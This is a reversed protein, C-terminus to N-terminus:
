LASRGTLIGGKEQQKLYIEKAKNLWKEKRKKRAELLASKHPKYLSGEYDKAGYPAGTRAHEQALEEARLLKAEVLMQEEEKSRGLKEYWKQKELREATDFINGRDSMRDMASYYKDKESLKEAEKESFTKYTTPTFAQKNQAEILANIGEENSVAEDYSIGGGASGGSSYGEESLLKKNQFESEIQDLYDRKSKKLRTAQRLNPKKIMSEAEPSIEQLDSIDEEVIPESIYSTKPMRMRKQMQNEEVIDSRIKEMQRTSAQDRGKQEADTFVNPDAKPPLNAGPAKDGEFYTTPIEVDKRGRTYLFPNTDARDGYDQATQTRELNLRATKLADNRETTGEGFSKAYEIDRNYAAIDESKLSSIDKQKMGEMMNYAGAGVEIMDGMPDDYYSGDSRRGQIARSGMKGLGTAESAGGTQAAAYVRAANAILGKIGPKESAIRDAKEKKGLRDLAATESELGYLQGAIQSRYMSDSGSPRFGFAM